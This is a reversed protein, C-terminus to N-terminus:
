SEKNEKFSNDKKDLYGQSYRSLIELGINIIKQLIMIGGVGSIGGIFCAMTVSINPLLETLLAGVMLATFGSTFLVKFAKKLTMEIDDNTIKALGGLMGMIFYLVMRFYENDTFNM